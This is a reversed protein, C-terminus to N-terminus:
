KDTQEVFHLYYWCTKGFQKHLERAARDRDGGCRSIGAIYDNKRQITAPRISYGEPVLDRKFYTMCFLLAEEYNVPIERYGLEKLRYINAAFNKIDKNLLFAAMQYEFAMRNEPHENLLENLGLDSSIFDRKVLFQRKETLEKNRSILTTDSVYKKYWIAWDKYFVTQDLINLYKDAIQYNRNIISTQVLRKLSRPNLGKAVMSEFAWRYAENIHNLHYFIEGGFFPTVEDRTWELRLGKIGQQQFDFMRDSFQGTKYLALNTYYLVLQNIGPYTKSLSIVKNWDETQVYHDMGLFIEIKPDYAKTKVFVIGAIVVLSGAFISMYNWSVLMVEKKMIKKYGSLILIIAPFYALLAAFLPIRSVGWFPFPYLWADKLNILYLFNWALYPIGISFLIIALSNMWKTKSNFYFLEFLVAMLSALLAFSGTLHYLLLWVIGGVMYRKLIGTLQLYGYSFSLAFIIGITLGIKYLHNSQLAAILLVPVICLVFANIGLKKFISYSLFSIGVALLTVIVAGLYSNVFFQSLFEGLYFIFEGPKEIFPKFYDGSFRFLQTQELYFLHFKNLSFFYFYFALFLVCLFIWKSYRIIKGTLFRQM